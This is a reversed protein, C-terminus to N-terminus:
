VLRASVQEVLEDAPWEDVYLRPLRYPNTSARVGDALTTCACALGAERVCAVTKRDHAGFPYSFLRVNRGLLEELQRVSGRIEALKRERPVATLRPHTITHAGIEVLGGDALQGLEEASLTDIRAPPEAGAWIRLQALLEDQEREELPSLTERLDRYLVRREEGALISWTRTTGRVKLELRDPLVPPSLCIRELEDWWFRRKSGVYGSVAFVTAPVDYRELLPKAEVLNDLYGDDFTIVVSRPPLAGDALAEVLDALHLPRFHTRLALLHEEFRAPSVTLGDSRHLAVRHYMLVVAESPSRPHLVRQAIDIFTRQM